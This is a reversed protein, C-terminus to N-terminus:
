QVRKCLHLEDAFTQSNAIIFENDRSSKALTATVKPAIQKFPPFDDM